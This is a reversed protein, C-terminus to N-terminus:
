KTQMSWAWIQDTQQVIIGRNQSAEVPKKHRCTPVRFLKTIRSREQAVHLAMPRRNGDNINPHREHVAELNLRADVM